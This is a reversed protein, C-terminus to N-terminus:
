HHIDPRAARVVLVFVCIEDVEWRVPRDAGHVAIRLKGSALADGRLESQLLWVFHMVQHQM